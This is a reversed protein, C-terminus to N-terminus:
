FTWYVDLIKFDPSFLSVFKSQLPIFSLLFAVGFFAAVGIVRYLMYIGVATQIPGVWVFHCLVFGQDFKSVDNSLLNVLQGVTTQGLATRCFLNRILLLNYDFIKIVFVYVFYNYFSFHKAVISKTTLCVFVDM